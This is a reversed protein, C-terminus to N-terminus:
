GKKRDALYMGVLIMATGILFFITINESLILWAFVITTVPNIYVYNTATVAGITKLAWNWAVFCLMSAICGLFLLNVVITMGIESGESFANSFFAPIGLWEDPFFLFYPIMSLLGYFFVKRTIFVVDYRRNASIMLLSYFAWCLCAAFALSDGLPSLHLVFHGNLVVVVVGIAALVSGLLQSPRLRESKYVAGILATAFLPCLCVILSTNTTTTYNMSENETLFYMSGGTLGLGVMLLEDKWTDALWRHNKRSLSFLLLLVYAIIFRLTFIQAATLGSLLLLKTFVFTSGWVVVTLFAVIHGLVKTNHRM